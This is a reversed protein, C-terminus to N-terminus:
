VATDTVWVDFDVAEGARDTLWTTEFTWTEGAPVDTVNTYEDGLLVGDADYVKGTAEIYSVDAGRENVVEGRIVVEGDGVNMESGRLTLGDPNMPPTEADYEGDFQYSDVDGPNTGLYPVRAAWAEGAGLSQLFASDNDMYDGSADYWDATLEITGSPAAGTNEVTAAVYVEDGFEGEEVVLEHDVIEVVADGDAGSASREGDESAADPEAPQQFEVLLQKSADDLANWSVTGEEVIREPAVADDDLVLGATLAPPRRNGDGTEGLDPEGGGVVIRMAMGFLEHATCRLDYVGPEDFRYLWVADTGLVSSSFPSANEPIRRQRGRQPHYATVTHGPSTPTFQVIDGSEIALGVPEFFSEPVTAAEGGGRERPRTM